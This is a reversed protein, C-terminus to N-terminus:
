TYLRAVGMAVTYVPLLGAFLPGNTFENDSSGM